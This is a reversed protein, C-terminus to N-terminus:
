HADSARVEQVYVRVPRQMYFQWAFMTPPVVLVSGLLASFHMAMVLDAGIEGRM